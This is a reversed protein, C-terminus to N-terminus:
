NGFNFKLSIKKTWCINVVTKYAVNGIRDRNWLILIISLRHYVFNTEGFLLLLLHIVHTQTFFFLALIWSAIGFFKHFNM